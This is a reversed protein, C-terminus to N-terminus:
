RIKNLEYLAMSITHKPSSKKGDYNEFVKILNERRSFRYMSNVAKEFERESRVAAIIKDM